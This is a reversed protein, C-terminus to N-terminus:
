NSYKKETSLSFAVSRQMYFLEKMCGAQNRKYTDPRINKLVVLILNCNRWNNNGRHAKNQM